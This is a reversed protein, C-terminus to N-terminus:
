WNMYSLVWSIISHCFSSLYSPVMAGVVKRLKTARDEHLNVEIAVIFDYSNTGVEFEFLVEGFLAFDVEWVEFDELLYASLAFFVYNDLISLWTPSDIRHETCHVLLYHTDTQNHQKPDVVSM